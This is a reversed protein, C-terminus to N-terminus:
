PKAKSKTIVIENSEQKITVDMTARLANLLLNLNDNPLEGSLTRSRLDESEIDVLVGYHDEIFLAIENLPTNDFVIKGNLWNLYGPRAMILQLQSGPTYEALDGPNMISQEGNLLSLKVKGEKLMVKTNGRRLNVNFATGLVMV